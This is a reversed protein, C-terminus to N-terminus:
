IEIREWDHLGKYFPQALPAPHIAPDRSSSLRFSVCLQLRYVQHVLVDREGDNRATTDHQMLISDFGSCSRHTSFDKKRDPICIEGEEAAECSGGRRPPDM